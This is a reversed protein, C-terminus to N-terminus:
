KSFKKNTFLRAHLKRFRTYKLYSDYDITSIDLDTNTKLNGKRELLIQNEQPKLKRYLNYVVEVNQLLIINM